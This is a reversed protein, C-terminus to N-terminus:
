PALRAIDAALRQSFQEAAGRTIHNGDNTPYAQDIYNLYPIKEQTALATLRKDFDPQYHQELAAMEPGTPVRVLVVRGHKQLFTITQQLSVERAVALTNTAALARYTVLKEAMRRHLLAPNTSPPPLAIELWGDPHLREIVHASDTDLLLQYFPKHLYHALYDLNPSQSVSALQSVMSKEEPFVIRGDLKNLVRSKYDQLSKDRQVNKPLSLSWPDVALVFLGHQTGPALKREISSLYGPGYPSEALTFAYNLWPGQYRSGLQAALVGPKIAQAARSTGLVLSSAPPAAFRAYFADVYGARLGAALGLGAVLGVVGLLGALRLVLKLM